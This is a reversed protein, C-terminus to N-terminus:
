IKIQPEKLVLNVGKILFPTIFMSIVIVLTLVGLLTLPITHQLYALLIIIFAFEGSQTLLSSYQFLRNTNYKYWSAVALACVLKIVFLCVLMDIIHWPYQVIFSLQIFLGMSIFITSVLLGSFPQIAESIDQRFEADAMIMGAILAAFATSIGLMQAFYVAILLIFISISLWLTPIYPNNMQKLWRVLGFRLMFLGATFATSIALYSIFKLISLNQQFLPLLLILIIALYYHVKYDSFIEKGTILDRIHTNSILQKILMNSPIALAFGFLLSLSFTIQFVLYVIGAIVIGLIGLHVLDLQKFQHRTQWLQSPRLELGILFMFALIAIHGFTNIWNKAILNPFQQFLVGAIMGTFIYGLLSPLGLRKSLPVILFTLALILCLPLLVSM